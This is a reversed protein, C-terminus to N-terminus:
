AHSQSRIKHEEAIFISKLVTYATELHDNVIHYDYKHMKELEHRAWALREEILEPHETQRKDLRGKLETLSPPSIFIFIAPIKGKLEQAGQTDIVLVVHKGQATQTKVFETSTGYYENFVQAYELFDGKQIKARFADKTLFFYDQGDKEGPRPSRTTSSISRVICPFEKTLM